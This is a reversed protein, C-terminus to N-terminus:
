SESVCALYMKKKNRKSKFHHNFPPLPAYKQKLYYLLSVLKKRGREQKIIDELTHYSAICLSLYNEKLFLKHNKKRINKM